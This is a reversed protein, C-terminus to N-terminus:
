LSSIISSVDINNNFTKETVSINKGSNGTYLSKDTDIIATKGKEDSYLLCNVMTLNISNTDDGVQQLHIAVGKTSHMYCNIFKINQNAGQYAPEASNHLFVAGLGLDNDTEFVCDKFILRCNPRLGIGAASRYDSYFYCNEFIITSKVMWNNDAHLAYSGDAAGSAQKALFQMNKFYGDNTVRIADNNYASNDSEVICKSKDIGIISKVASKNGESNDDMKLQEFYQGPLVLISDSAGNSNAIASQVTDYDGGSKAVTLLNSGLSASLKSTITKYSLSVDKPVDTGWIVYGSTESVKALFVIRIYYSTSPLSISTSYEQFDGSNGVLAKQADYYWVKYYLFYNGHTATALPGRPRFYDTLLFRDGANSNVSGDSDNITSGLTMSDSTIETDSLLLNQIGTELQGVQLSGQKIDSASEILQDAIKKYTIKVTAATDATWDIYGGSESTKVLFVIRVYATNDIISIGNNYRIIDGSNGIVKHDEDYFWAKYYFLNYAGCIASVVSVRPRFYDTLLFRNGATSNVSGDADNITSGLAMETGLTYTQSTLIDELGSELQEVLVSHYPIKPAQYLSGKEWATGNWFNWYGDDQTIWIGDTGNPFEAQLAALNDRVGKPTFYSNVGPTGVMEIAAAIAERVDKGYMKTRIATALGVLSAKQADTLATDDTAM